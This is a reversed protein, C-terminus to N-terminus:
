QGFGEALQAAAKAANMASNIQFATLTEEIARAVDEQSESVIYHAGSRMAVVSGGVADHPIISELAAVALLLAQGDSQNTLKVLM